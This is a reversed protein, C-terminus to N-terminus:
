AAYLEAQLDTVAERLSDTSGFFGIIESVNGRDSIPSVKLAEPITFETVGHEAYKDLLDELVARAEPGYRDFFDQKDKRLRRVREYRTFLPANYALHCLLDFPDANPQKTVEALEKFHVGRGALMAMIEGRDDPRAWHERLVAATPYLTRIVEATYDTYKVVRL